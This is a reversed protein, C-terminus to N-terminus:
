DRLLCQQFGLEILMSRALIVSKVCDVIGCIEAESSSLSTTAQPYSKNFFMGSAAQNPVPVALDKEDTITIMNMCYSIQSRGNPTSAFSADTFGQLSLFVGPAYKDGPKFRIGMHQTEHLYAIIRELAQM